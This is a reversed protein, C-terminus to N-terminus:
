NSMLLMKTMSNLKSTGRFFLNYFFTAAFFAFLFLFLLLLSPAKHTNEKGKHPPAKHKSQTWARTELV